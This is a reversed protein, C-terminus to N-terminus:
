RKMGSVPFPATAFEIHNEQFQRVIESHVATRLTHRHGYDSIVYRMSIVFAYNAFGAFRANKFRVGEHKGVIDPLLKVAARIREETNFVSLPIDINVFFGEAASVNVLESQTLKSNPVTILFDSANPRLRTYQLGIDEVEAKEGKFMILDGVSFSKSVFISIGGIIDALTEKSAMAIALGGIGLGALVAGVNFGCINAAAIVAISWVAFVLLTRLLPLIGTITKRASSQRARNGARRVLFNILANLLVAGLFVVALKILVTGCQRTLIEYREARLVGTEGSLFRLRDKKTKPKEAEPLLQLEEPSHGSIFRIRRVVTLDAAKLKGMQDQYVGIEADMGSPSLREEFLGIWKGAAIVQIHRDFLLDATHSIEETRQAEAIKAPTSLRRGTKTEFHKLIEQAKDPQLRARISVWEEEKEIEAEQAQKKLAPILKSIVTKGEETLRILRETRDKCEGLQHQRMESETLELYYAKLLETLNRARESPVFSLFYESAADRAEMRRVAEQELSALETKSIDARSRRMDEEIKQLENLTDTRKGAMNQIETLLTLTEKLTEDEKSLSQVEQRVFVLDNMYKAAETELRAIEDQKLAETIGEPIEVGSLQGRGLRKKLEVADAHNQLALKRTQGILTLFQEIKGSVTNQVRVLENRCRQQEEIIRVRGALMNEYNEAAANEKKGQKEQKKDGKDGKDEKDGKEQKEKEQKEATQEPVKEPEPPAAEAAAKLTEASSAPAAPQKEPKPLELGAFEYLKKLINTKEEFSEERALRVLPDKLSDLKMRAAESEASIKEFEERQKQLELQSKQLKESGEQFNQLIQEATRDKNGAEWQQAEAVSESAKKLNELREQTDKLAAQSKVIEEDNRATQEKAKQIVAGADSRKESLTKEADALAESGSEKLVADKGIKGQGAMDELLKAIVRMKFIHSSLVTADGEFAEGYKVLSELASRMAKLKEIRKNHYATLEEAAAAAERTEEPRAAALKSADPASLSEIDKVAALMEEKRAAFRKYSLNLTTSLWLHEELLESIEAALKEPTKGSYEQEVARRKLEQSHTAKAANHYSEAEILSKKAEEIRLVTQELEKQAAQAKVKLATEWRSLEKRQYELNKKSLIDPVSQPLLTKDGIRLSIELQFGELRGLAENMAAAASQAAEIQAILQDASTKEGGVLELRSKLAEARKLTHDLMMKAADAPSMKPDAPPKEEPVVSTESKKRAQEFFIENESMGRLQALFGQHAESFVSEAQKLLEENSLLHLRAKKESKEAAAPKPNEEAAPLVTCFFLMTMVAATIKFNKM